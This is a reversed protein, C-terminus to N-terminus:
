KVEVLETEDVLLKKPIKECPVTTMGDAGLDSYRAFCLDPLIKVFGTIRSITAHNRAEVLQQAKAEEKTPRGIIFWCVVILLTPSLILILSGRKM